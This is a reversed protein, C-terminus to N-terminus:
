VQADLCVNVGSGRCGSWYPPAGNIWCNTTCQNGYPNNVSDTAAYDCLEGSNLIGNGCLSTATVHGTIQKWVDPFIYASTFSASFILALSLILVVVVERKM